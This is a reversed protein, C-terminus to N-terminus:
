DETQEQSPEEFIERLFQKRWSSDHRIERPSPRGVYVNMPTQLASCYQIRRRTFICALVMGVTHTVRGGTIDCIIEDQDLGMVEIEENFIYNVAKYVDRTSQEGFLNVLFDRKPSTESHYHFKVRGMYNSEAAPGLGLDPYPSEHVFKELYPAVRWSGPSIPRGQEAVMINHEADRADDTCILWVHRLSGDSLHYRIAQLPVDFNSREAAQELNLWDDDQKDPKNLLATFDEFNLADKRPSYLSLLLVLGKMKPPPVEEPTPPVAQLNARRSFMSATLLAIVALLCIGLVIWPPQPAASDSGPIWGPTLWSLFSFLFNGLLAAWLLGGLYAFITRVPHRPHPTFISLLYRDLRKRAEM